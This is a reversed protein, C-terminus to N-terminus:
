ILCFSHLGKLLISDPDTSNTNEEDTNQPEQERRHYIEYFTKGTLSDVVTLFLDSLCDGDFDIQAATHPTSLKRSGFNTGRQLCGETEDIVLMSTEFDKIIFESPNLTQFAVKIKHPALAESYLIDELFDGNLDSVFPLSGQEISLAFNPQEVIDLSVPAKDFIRINTIIPGSCTVFIRVRDVSRGVVVNVIKLCETPKITKQFMFM